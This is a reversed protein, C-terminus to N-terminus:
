NTLGSKRLSPESVKPPFNPFHSIIVRSFWAAYAIAVGTVSLWELLLSAASM